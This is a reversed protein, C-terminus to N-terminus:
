NQKKASEISECVLGIPVIWNQSKSIKIGKKYFVKGQFNVCKYTFEEGAKLTQVEKKTLNEFHKM